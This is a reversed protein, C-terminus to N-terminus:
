ASIVAPLTVKVASYVGTAAGGAPRIFEIKRNNYDIDYQEITDGANGGTLRYVFNGIYIYVVNAAVYERTFIKEVGIAGAVTEESFPLGSATSLGQARLASLTAKNMVAYTTGDEGLKGAGNLLAAVASADGSGDYNYVHGNTNDAAAADLSVISTIKRAGNARGDGVIFAREEEEDVKQPLETRIFSYLINGFDEQMDAYSLEQMKFIFDTDLKQADLQMTQIAKLDGKSWKGARALDAESRKEAMLTLKKAPVNKFTSLIDTDRTAALIETFVADPVVYDNGGDKLSIANKVEAIVQSRNLNKIAGSKALDVLTNLVMAKDAVLETTQNQIPQTAMEKDEEPNNTEEKDSEVEAEAEDESEVEEETEDERKQAEELENTEAEEEVSEEETDVSNSALIKAKPEAGAYVVSVEIIHANKLVDGEDEDSYGSGWDTTISVDTLEGDLVRQRVEQALEGKFFKAKMEVSQEDGNAVLRATYINGIKEGISSGHNEMLPIAVDQWDAGLTSYEGTADQALLTETQYEFGNLNRVNRAAIFTIEGNSAETDVSSKAFKPRKAM